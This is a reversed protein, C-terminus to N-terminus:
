SEPIRPYSVLLLSGALLSTSTGQEVEAAIMARYHELAERSHGSARRSDALWERDRGTEYLWREGHHGDEIIRALQVHHILGYLCNRINFMWSESYKPSADALAHAIAEREWNVEPSIQGNTTRKTPHAAVYADIQAVFADLRAALVEATIVETM